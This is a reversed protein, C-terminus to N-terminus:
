FYFNNPIRKKCENGIIFFGQSNSIFESTSVLNGNDLLQVQLPSETKIQKGCLLCCFSNHPQETQVDSLPIQFIWRDLKHYKIDYLIDNSM